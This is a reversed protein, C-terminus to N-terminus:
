FRRRGRKLHEPLENSEIEIGKNRLIMEINEETEEFQLTLENISVGKLYRDQIKNQEKETLVLKRTNNRNSIDSQYKQLVDLIDSLITPNIKIIQVDKNDANITQTIEIYMKGTNLEILDIFFSSKDFELQTTKLTEKM